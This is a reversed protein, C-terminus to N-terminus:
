GDGDENNNDMTTSPIDTHLYEFEDDNSKLHIYEETARILTVLEGDLEETQEQQTYERHAFLGDKCEIHIVDNQSKDREVLNHQVGNEDITISRMIKEQVTTEHKKFIPITSSDSKTNIQTSCSSNTELPGVLTNTKHTAADVGDSGNDLQLDHMSEFHVSSKQYYKKSRDILDFSVIGLELFEIIIALPIANPSFDCKSLFDDILLKHSASPSLITFLSQKTIVIQDHKINAFPLFIDPLSTHQHNSDSELVIKILFQRRLRHLSSINCGM